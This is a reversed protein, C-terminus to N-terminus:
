LATKSESSGVKTGNGLYSQESIHINRVNSAFSRLHPGFGEIMIHWKGKDGMSQWSPLFTTPIGARFALM